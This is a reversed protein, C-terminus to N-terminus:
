DCKLQQNLTVSDYVNTTQKSGRVRYKAGTAKLV